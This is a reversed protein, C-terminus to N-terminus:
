PPKNTQKNKNQHPSPPAAPSPRMIEGHLGAPGSNAICILTAQFERSREGAETELIWPNFAIAM